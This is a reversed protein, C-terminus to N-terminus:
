LVDAVCSHLGHECKVWAAMVGVHACSRYGKFVGRGRVQRAIEQERALADEETENARPLVRCVTESSFGLQRVEAPIDVQVKSSM